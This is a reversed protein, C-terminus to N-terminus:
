PTSSAPVHALRARTLPPKSRDAPLISRTTQYVDVSAAHRLSPQEKALVELVAKVLAPDGSAGVHQLIFEWRTEMFRRRLAADTAQSIPLLEGTASMPLLEARSLTPGPIWAFTPYHAVPWANITGTVGALIAALLLGAGVVYTPTEPHSRVARGSWHFLRDWPVFAVYCLQLALFHIGMLAWTMNHFVLGAVVALLRTRRFLILGLFSVEFLITGAAAFFLPWVTEDLPFLPTFGDPYEAWKLYLHYRMTFPRIWDPLLLAKYIGPFLYIIGILLWVFRLPVGYASSPAPRPRQGLWADVSLADACPSAALIAAFWVLHHCHDVKWGYLQPIGLLLFALLAAGASTWRTFLGLAAFIASGVLLWQGAEVMAPTMPIAAYWGSYPPPTRLAEPLGAFWVLDYFTAAFWALYGFLVIRFVALNLASDPERLFQV